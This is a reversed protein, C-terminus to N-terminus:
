WLTWFLKPFPWMKPFCPRNKPFDPWMKPFWNVNKPFWTVNKPFQTVSEPAGLHGKEQIEEMESNFNWVNVVHHTKCYARSNIDM